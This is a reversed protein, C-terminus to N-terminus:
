GACLDSPLRVSTAAVDGPIEFHGCNSLLELVAQNWLPDIPDTWISQVQEELSFHTRLRSQRTPRSAATQALLACLSLNGDDPVKCIFAVSPTLFPEHACEGVFAAHSLGFVQAPSETSLLQGRILDLVDTEPPYFSEFKICSTLTRLDSDLADRVERICDLVTFGSSSGGRSRRFAVGQDHFPTLSPLSLTISHRAILLSLDSAAM